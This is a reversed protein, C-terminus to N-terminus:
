VGIDPTNQVLAPPSARNRLAVGCLDLLPLRVKNEARTLNVCSAAPNRFERQCTRTGPKM